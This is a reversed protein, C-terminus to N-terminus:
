VGADLEAKIRPHSDYGVLSFLDNLNTYKLGDIYGIIETVDNIESINTELTCLKKPKRSLQTNIADIHSNYIHTDGGVWVLKGVKYGLLAGLFHVLFACSAINFPVGLFFDCSRQYMQLDLYEVNDVPRVNFQYLLHCVPLAMNDLDSLNWGDIINYRGFKNNKLQNLLYEIQDKGNQDRWQHGYIKGCDGMTYDQCNLYHLKNGDKIAEIFEDIKITSYPRKKHFYRFADKNWINVNNDVLPKINTDGKLFWILETLIGRVFMKKTTLLPFGDNLDFEMRTGFLSITGSQGKRSPPKQSGHTLIKQALDLYQKM